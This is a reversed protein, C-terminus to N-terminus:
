LGKRIGEAAVKVKAWSWRPRPRIMSWASQWTERGASLVAGLGCVWSEFALPSVHSGDVLRPMFFPDTTVTVFGPNCTTATEVGCQRLWSVFDRHTVGSPYCFHRTPRHTLPEIVARNETLEQAFLAADHPTRHRHTHLQVEVGAQAIATVEAPTMLQMLRNRLMGPFDLELEQALRALHGERQTPTYRHRRVYDHMWKALAQREGAQSLDWRRDV